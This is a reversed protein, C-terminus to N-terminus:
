QLLKHLTTGIINRKTNFQILTDKCAQLESTFDETENTCQGLCSAIDSSLLSVEKEPLISANTFTSSLVADVIGVGESM